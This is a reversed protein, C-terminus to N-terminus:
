PDVSVVRGFISDKGIWGNIGGKNNGIQFREGGREHRVVKVQHLFERGGVKCLVITGARIEEDGIPALTCLMGSAIRPEMSNGKPRFSVIEGRKLKEIHEAAWGV